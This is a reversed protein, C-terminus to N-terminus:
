PRFELPSYKSLNKDVVFDILSSRINCYNLFTNGKAAAGYAVVKKKELKLNILLNIFNKKIKDLKSSFKLM